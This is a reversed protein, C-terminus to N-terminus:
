AAPSPLSPPAILDALQQLHRRKMELVEGLLARADSDAAEAIRPELDALRQREVAILQPVLHCLAVNNITTYSMPYGGPAPPTVRRRLLLRVARGVAAQEERDMAVILDFARREKRAMWPDAESVYHLLSRGERLILEELLRRSAADM